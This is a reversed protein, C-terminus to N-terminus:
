PHRGRAAQLRARAEDPQVGERQLALLYDLAEVVAPRLSDNM